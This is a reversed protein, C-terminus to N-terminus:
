RAQHVIDIEGNASRFLQLRHYNIGAAGISEEQSGVRRKAFGMAAVATAKIQRFGRRMLRDVQSGELLSEHLVRCPELSVVDSIHNMHTHSFRELDLASIEPKLLM